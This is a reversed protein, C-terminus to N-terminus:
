YQVVGDIVRPATTPLTPVAGNATHPDVWSSIGPLASDAITPLTLGSCNSASANALRLEEQLPKVFYTNTGDSVTSDAPITFAAVWRTNVTPDCTVDANTVPDVCKGPIGQLDGFGNYQLVLTAGGFNAVGAPITYSLALPPDFTVYTGGSQLGSFQNWSNPGTEWVYVTTVSELRNPCYHDLAATNGGNADCALGALGAADVMRGSQFGSMYQPNPSAGSTWAVTSSGAMLLGASAGTAANATYSLVDATAVPMWNWQSSSGSGFSLYPSGTGALGNTFTAGAAPCDTVCYLTLDSAWGTGGPTLVTETRYTVNTVASDPYGLYAGTTPDRTVITLQGGLSQSWGSVNWFTQLAAGTIDPCGSQTACDPHPVISGNNTYGTIVFLSGDWKVELNSGTTWNNSNSDQFPQSVWLYFPVNVIAGLKATHLDLKKLRGDKKVLTYTGSATQNNNYSFRTVTAGDNLTVGNPLWLGWYGVYGMGGAATKIPFGSNRQLRSGDAGYVGYSWATRDAQRSDRSFCQDNTGGSNDARRFYNADFAFKWDGSSGGSGQAFQVRGQGSDVTGSLTVHVQQDGDQFASVQAGNGEAYGYFRGGTACVSQGTPLGCFDTHFHGYPESATPASTASLKAYIIGTSTGGGPGNMANELFWVKGILPSADDARTATVIGTMYDPASTAGSNGSASSNVAGSANECKNKDVLAIYTGQNLVTGQNAGTGNMYCLVTNPLRIGQSTADEVYSQTVDTSYAGSTPVAPPVALAPISAMAVLGFALRRIDLMQYDHV